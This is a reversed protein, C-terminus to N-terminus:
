IARGGDDGAPSATSKLYSVLQRIPRFIAAMVNDMLADYGMHGNLTWVEKGFAVNWVVM